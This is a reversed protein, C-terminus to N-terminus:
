SRTRARLERRSRRVSRGIRGTCGAEVPHKREEDDSRDDPRPKGPHDQDLATPRPGDALTSISSGIGRPRGNGRDRSPHDSLEDSRRPSRRRPHIEPSLVLRVEDNGRRDIQGAIQHEEAETPRDRLCDAVQDVVDDSTASADLRGRGLHCSRRGSRGTQREQVPRLERGILEAVGGPRIPITISLSSVRPPGCHRCEVPGTLGHAGAFVGIDVPKVKVVLGVPGAPRQDQHMAPERRALHETRDDRMRAAFWWTM